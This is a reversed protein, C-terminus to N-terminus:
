CVNKKSRRKLTLNQKRRSAKSMAFVKKNKSNRLSQIHIKRDHIHEEWVTNGGNNNHGEMDELWTRSYKWNDVPYGKNSSVSNGMLLGGYFTIEEACAISNGRIRQVDVVRAKNAQGRIARLRSTM